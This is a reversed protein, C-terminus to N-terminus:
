LVVGGQHQGLHALTLQVPEDDPPIEPPTFPDDLWVWLDRYTFLNLRIM